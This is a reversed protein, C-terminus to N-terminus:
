KRGTLTALCQSNFLNFIQQFVATKKNKQKRRKWEQIIVSAKTAKTFLQSTAKTQKKRKLKWETKGKKQNSIWENVTPKVCKAVEDNPYM